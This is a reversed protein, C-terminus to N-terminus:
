KPPPQDGPLARSRDVGDVRVEDPDELAPKDTKAPEPRAIGATAHDEPDDGDPEHAAGNGHHQTM